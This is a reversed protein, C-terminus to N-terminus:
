GAKRKKVLRGALFSGAFDGRKPALIENCNNPYLKGQLDIQQAYLNTDVLFPYKKKALSAWGTKAFVNEKILRDCFALDSTGMQAFYRDQEPDFWSERPFKFAQKIKRGDPLQYDPSNKWVWEFISRHIALFGTPVGDAWVLGDYLLKKTRPDRREGVEFDLFAGSGRGRFILPWTPESKSFYLGSILPTRMKEMHVALRLMSDFPALVDDEWLLCWEYKDLVARELCLNQADATHYGMGVTDPLHNATVEGSQWNIPIIQGRRHVDWEIRVVGLTPVGIMLRKMHPGLNKIITTKGIKQVQRAGKIYHPNASRM